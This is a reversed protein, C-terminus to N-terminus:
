ISPSNSLRGDKTVTGLRQELEESRPCKQRTGDCGLPIFGEYLLREGFVQQIRTRFAAALARLVPM